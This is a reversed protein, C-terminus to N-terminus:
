MVSRLMFSCVEQLKKPSTGRSCLILHESLLKEGKGRSELVAAGENRNAKGVKSIGIRPVEALALLFIPSPFPRLPSYHLM